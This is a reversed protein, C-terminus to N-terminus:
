MFFSSFFMYFLIMFAYSIFAFKRSMDIFIANIALLLALFIVLGWFYYGPYTYNRYFNKISNYSFEGILLIIVLTLQLGLMYLTTGYLFKKTREPIHSIAPGMEDKLRVELSKRSVEEEEEDLEYHFPTEMTEM